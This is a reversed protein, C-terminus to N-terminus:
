CRTLRLPLKTELATDVIFLRKLTEQTVPFVPM